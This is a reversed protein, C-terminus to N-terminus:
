KRKRGQRAHPPVYRKEKESSVLRDVREINTVLNRADEPLNSFWCLEGDSAGVLLVPGFFGNLPMKIPLFPCIVGALSNEDHHDESIIVHVDQHLIGHASDHVLAVWQRGLLADLSTENRRLKVDKIGGNPLILIGSAKVRMQELTFPFLQVSRSKPRPSYM